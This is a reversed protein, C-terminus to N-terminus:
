SELEPFSRTSCDDSWKWECLIGVLTAERQRGLLSTDFFLVSPATNEFHHPEFLNRRRNLGQTVRCSVLTHQQRSAKDQQSWSSSSWVRPPARGGRHRRGCCLNSDSPAVSGQHVRVRAIANITLQLCRCRDEGHSDTSLQESTSLATPSAVPHSPHMSLPSPRKTCQPSIRRTAMKTSKKFSQCCRVSTKAM